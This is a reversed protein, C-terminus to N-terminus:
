QRIGDSLEKLRKVQTHAETLSMGTRERLFTLAQITEGRAIMARATELTDPETRGLIARIRAAVASATDDPDTVYAITIPIEGEGTILCVRRSPVGSDALPRQVAVEKVEAFPVTGGRMGWTRRREWTMLNTGCDFEFKAREFMVIVPIFMTAASIWATVMHDYDNWGFLAIGTAYAACALGVIGFLAVMGGPPITITLRNDRDDIQM